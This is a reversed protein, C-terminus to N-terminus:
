LFLRIYTDKVFINTIEADIFVDINLSLSVDSLLKLSWYENLMSLMSLMTM